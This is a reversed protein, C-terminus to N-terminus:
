APDVDWVEVLRWSKGRRAVAGTISWGVAFEAALPEPMRIAGVAEDGHASLWIRDAAIRTVRFVDEEARDSPEVEDAIWRALRRALKKARPLDRAASRAEAAIGRAEEAEAWGKEALWEALEATVAAASKLGRDGAVIKRRLFYSLFERLYPAIFEPGFSESFAARASGGVKSRAEWIKRRRADLHQHGYGDLATAILEVANEVDRRFREARGAAREAVFLALADRITCTGGRTAGM